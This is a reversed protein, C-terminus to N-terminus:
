AEYGKGVGAIRGRFVAVDAEEYELTFVNAVRAGRLVLDCPTDGRAAALFDSTSVPGGGDKEMTFHLPFVM